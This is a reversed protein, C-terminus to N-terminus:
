GGMKKFADITYNATRKANSKITKASMHSTCSRIDDETIFYIGAGDESVIDKMRDVFHERWKKDKTIDANELYKAFANDIEDYYAKIPKELLDKSLARFAKEIDEQTLDFLNSKKNCYQEIVEKRKLTYEIRCMTSLDKIETGDKSSKNYSYISERTKDYIKIEKDRSTSALGTPFTGGVIMRWLTEKNVLYNKGGSEKYESHRFGDLKAQYAGLNEIAGEIGHKMKYNVNIEVCRLGAYNEDFYIGYNESIKRMLEKVYNQEEKCSNNSFNGLFEYGKMPCLFVEFSCIDHNSRGNGRNISLTFNSFRVTIDSVWPLPQLGNCIKLAQESSVTQKVTLAETHLEKEREIANALKNWDIEKIELVTRIRDFGVRRPITLFKYNKKEYSWRVSKDLFIEEAFFDMNDGQLILKIDM